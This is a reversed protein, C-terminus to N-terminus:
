ATRQRGAMRHCSPTSHLVLPDAHAHTFCSSSSRPEGAPQLQSDHKETVSERKRYSTIVDNDSTPFPVAQSLDGLIFRAGIDRNIVQEEFADRCVQGSYM